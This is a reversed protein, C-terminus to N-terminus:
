ISASRGPRMASTFASSADGTSVPVGSKRISHIPEREFPCNPTPSAIAQSLMRSESGAARISVRDSRSSPVRHRFDNGHAIRAIRRHQLRRGALCRQPRLCFEVCQKRELDIEYRQALTQVGFQGIRVGGREINAEDFIGIPRVRPPVVRDLM